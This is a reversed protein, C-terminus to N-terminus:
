IKLDNSTTQAQKYKIEMVSKLYCNLGTYNHLIKYQISNLSCFEM